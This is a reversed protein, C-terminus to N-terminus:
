LGFTPASVLCGLTRGFNIEQFGDIKKIRGMFWELLKLITM